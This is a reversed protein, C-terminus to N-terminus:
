EGTSRFSPASANSEEFAKRYERPSQGQYIKFQRNFYSINDFGCAYCIDAIGHDTGILLKTAHSIRTENVFQSFTKNTRRKFYRCFAAESMCALSAASKSDVQQHYNELVYKFISTLKKSDVDKYHIKKPDETLLAVHERDQHSLEDLLQLLIILNKMQQNAQFQFFLNSFSAPIKRFQLGHESLQMLEKIRKLELKDFFEKGLFDETFQVIIAHAVAESDDAPANDNCFCHVLGPGFMYIEGESFNMVKNGAYVKGFSKVILILEHGHHFHFTNTFRPQCFEKIVFSADEPTSIHRYAVKMATSKEPTSIHRYAVKM